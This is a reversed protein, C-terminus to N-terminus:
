EGVVRAKTGPPQADIGLARLEAQVHSSNAIVPLAHQRCFAAVQYIQGESCACYAEIKGNRWVFAHYSRDYRDGFCDIDIVDTYVM